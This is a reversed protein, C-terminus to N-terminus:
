RIYPCLERQPLHRSQLSSQSAVTHECLRSAADKVTCTPAALATLCGCRKVAALSLAVTVKTTNEMVSRDLKLAKGAMSSSNFPSVMKKTAM